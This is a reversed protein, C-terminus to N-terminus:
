YRDGLKRVASVARDTAMDAGYRRLMAPDKWGMVTMVDDGSVGGALLDGATTHRFSHPSVLQPDYGADEVRRQLMYYLGWYGIPKMGRTGLWLAPTDEARPHQARVRLYRRVAMATKPQVPVWRGMTGRASKIGEVHILGNHLQELSATTDLNLLEQSRLGETLVSIMACDRLAAFDKQRPQLGGTAKLVDKIFEPTL